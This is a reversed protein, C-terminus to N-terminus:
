ISGLIIFVKLRFTRTLRSLSSISCNSFPIDNTVEEESFSYDHHFFFPIYDTGSTTQAM